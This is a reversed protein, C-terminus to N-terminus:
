YIKIINLQSFEINSIINVNKDIAVIESDLIFNKIGPKTHQLVFDIIDPYTETMNMLNRSFIECKGDHYHIQGRLGDYKFECTFKINEFRRFIVGIEKTPKALMPKVPVGPTIRCLELM